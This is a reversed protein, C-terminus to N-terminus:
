ELNQPFQLIVRLQACITCYLLGAAASIREVCLKLGLFEQSYDYKRLGTSCFMASLLIQTSVIKDTATNLTIVLQHWDSWQVINWAKIWNSTKMIKHPVCDASTVNVNDRHCQCCQCWHCQQCSGLHSGGQSRLGPSLLCQEGPIKFAIFWNNNIVVKLVHSCM